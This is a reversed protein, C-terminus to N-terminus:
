LFMWLSLSLSLIFKLRRLCAGLRALTTVTSYLRHRCICLAECMALMSLSFLNFIYLFLAISESHFKDSFPICGTSSSVFVFGCRITITQPKYLFFFFVYNKNALYFILIKMHGFRKCSNCGLHNTTKPPFVFAFWSINARFQQTIRM